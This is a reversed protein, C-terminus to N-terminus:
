PRLAPLPVARRHAERVRGAPAPVEALHGCKQCTVGVKTGVRLDVIRAIYLPVMRQRFSHVM